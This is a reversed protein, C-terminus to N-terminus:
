YHYDIMLNASEIAHVATWPMNNRAWTRTEELNRCPVFMMKINEFPVEKGLGIGRDPASSEPQNEDILFTVPFENFWAVHSYQYGCNFGTDAYIHLETGHGEGSTVEQGRERLRDRSLLAKHKILGEFVSSATSHYYGKLERRDIGAIDAAVRETHYVIDNRDEGYKVWRMSDAEERDAYTLRRTWKKPKWCEEKKFRLAERPFIEHCVETVWSRFLSLERSDPTVGGFYGSRVSEFDSLSRRLGILTGSDAPGTKELARYCQGIFLLEPSLYNSQSMKKLKRLVEQMKRGIVGSLEEPAIHEEKCLEDLTPLYSIAISEDLEESSFPGKREEARKTPIFHAAEWGEMEESEFGDPEFIMMGSREM